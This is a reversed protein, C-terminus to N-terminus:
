RKGSRKASQKMKQKMDQNAREIMIDLKSPETKSNISKAHRMNPFVEPMSKNSLKLHKLSLELPKAKGIVCKAQYNKGVEVFDSASKVYGAAINSLHILCTSSDELEVVAGANVISVVKCSYTMGKTLEM